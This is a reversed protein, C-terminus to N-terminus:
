HFTNTLKSEFIEPLLLSSILRHDAPECNRELFDKAYTVLAMSDVHWEGSEDCYREATYYGVSEFNRLALTVVAKTEDPVHLDYSVSLSGLFDSVTGVEDFIYNNPGFSHGSTSNGSDALASAIAEVAARLEDSFRKDM